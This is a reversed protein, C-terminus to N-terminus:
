HSVDERIEVQLVAHLDVTPALSYQHEIPFETNTTPADPFRKRKQSLREPVHLSLFLM